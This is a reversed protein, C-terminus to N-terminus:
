NPVQYISLVGYTEASIDNSTARCQVIHAGNAIVRVKIAKSAALTLPASVKMSVCSADADTSVREGIMISAADTSNYLQVKAWSSTAPAINITYEIWYSGAPLTVANASLSAFSNRNRLSTNISVDTWAGSAASINDTNTAISNYGVYDPVVFTPTSNSSSGTGAVAPALGISLAALLASAYKFLRM